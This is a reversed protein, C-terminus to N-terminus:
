EGGYEGSYLANSYWEGETDAIPISKIVRGEYSGKFAGTYSYKISTISVQNIAYKNVNTIIDLPQLRPDARFEGNISKRKSLVDAIWSSVTAYQSAQILPNSISQEEGTPDLVGSTPYRYAGDNINIDALSKNIDYEGNSYSVFQDIYYDGVSVNPMVVCVDGDENPRIVAGGANAVLQVVEACTYDFDWAYTTVGESESTTYPIVVNINSLETAVSWKNTGDADIPLDAQQFANEALSKLSITDGYTYGSISGPAFKRSMFDILSRATFSASIGNQPTTWESMFYTGVLHWEYVGNLKYAYKVNVRQRETLYSYIGTPNDPNWQENVNDIEFTFSDDPLTFSLLDSSLSQEASLVDNKSIYVTLGLTISEMRARRNPMCWEIVEIIITDYGSLEGTFYNQVRDNNYTQQFLNSGNVKATVKFQTAWENLLSSWNITLGGIRMTQPEDWTLTITPNTTFTGDAGSMKNSVWGCHTNDGIYAMNGDLVWENPELTAIPHENVYDVSLNMVESHDSFSEAGNTTITASIQAESDIQEYEIKIDNVPVLRDRNPVKYCGLAVKWDRTTTLM